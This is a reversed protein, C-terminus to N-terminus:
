PPHIQSHLQELFSYIIDDRSLFAAPSIWYVFLCFHVLTGPLVSRGPLRVICSVFSIELVTDKELFSAHLECFSLLLASCEKAGYNLLIHAQPKLSNGRRVGPLNGRAAAHSEICNVGSCPSAIFKGKRKSGRV